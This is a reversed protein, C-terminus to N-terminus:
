QGPLEHQARSGLSPTTGHGVDDGEGLLEGVLEARAGGVVVAGPLERGVVVVPHALRLVEGRRHRRLEATEARVEGVTARACCASARPQAEVASATFM